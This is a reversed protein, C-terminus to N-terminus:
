NEMWEYTFNNRAYYDKEKNNQMLGILENVNQMPMDASVTNEATIMGSDYGFEFRSLIVIPVPNIKIMEGTNIDMEASYITLIMALDNILGYKDAKHKAIIMVVDNYFIIIEESPVIQVGKNREILGDWSKALDEQLGPGYYGKIELAKVAFGMARGSGYALIQDRSSETIQGGSLSCSSLLFMMGILLFAVIVFKAVFEDFKNVRPVFLKLLRKM